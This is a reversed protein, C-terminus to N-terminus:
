DRYQTYRDLYKKVSKDLEKSAKKSDRYAHVGYAIGGITLFSFFIILTILDFKM